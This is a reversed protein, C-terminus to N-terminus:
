NLIELTLKLTMNEIVTSGLKLLYPENIEKFIENVGNYHESIKNELRRYFIQFRNTLRALLLDEASSM